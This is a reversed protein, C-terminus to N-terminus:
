STGEQGTTVLPAFYTDVAATSVDAANAPDWQPNRDKDIVQARIGEPFDHGRLMRVAIRYEQDLASELGPLERAIRLARLTVAVAMPSKAAVSEGAARAEPEPRSALAGLIEVVADAAFSADIWDRQAALRSSPAAQVVHALAAAVPRDALMEVLRPLDAALVYHDALGLGIADGADVHGATLAVYTGLEGPAHSLLWTGGVDPVFGIGTEPMGIRTRETVIRHSAHASVGVGGGLVIGDMLAVYPKPYSSITANLRYEDRWFDESGTGGTVADRHISVIDGGACLGREGSGTLVVTEVQPDEAWADLAAQLLGVMEHTLANIARPRNLTLVGLRGRREVLVPSEVELTETAPASM